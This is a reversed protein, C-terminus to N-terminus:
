KEIVLRLHDIAVWGNGGSRFGPSSRLFLKAWGDPHLEMVPGEQDRRMMGIVKRPQTPSDYIDVDNLARGYRAIPSQPLGGGKDIQCGEIRACKLCRNGPGSYELCTQCNDASCTVTPPSAVVALAAGPALQVLGAAALFVALATLWGPKLM